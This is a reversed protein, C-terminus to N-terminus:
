APGLASRRLKGAATRPLEPAFGIEKPVKFGALRARVHRRLDEPSVDLGPALVVIAHVAEGWEADERGHVGAEAVAPHSELAAEVEVPSVNEGGTVITDSARGHVTLRGAEDVSGLDGTALLGGPGASGPALVAGGVAIERTRADVELRAPAIPRGATHPEGAASVTVMSCTETLGYTQALPIGATEARELLGPAVPGGGIVACRLAPAGAPLGADLTRALTTAVLSVLTIAGGGLAAAARDAEFREHVVATTGYIASRVLISLGGVHCVPLTCLWRENRDLGLALASGAANWHFNAFTLEVPKPAGTSGSTHLVAAVSRSDRTAPRPPPGLTNGVLPAEVVLAAGAAQAARERAGLRLDIPVAIAGLRWTAHLLEAFALGGPLALGVRDGEGVGRAALRGAAAHVRADLDAYTASGAPTEIATVSPARRAAREIWDEM